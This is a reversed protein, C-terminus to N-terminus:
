ETNFRSAEEEQLAKLKLYVQVDPHNQLAKPIEDKTLLNSYLGNFAQVASTNKFAQEATAYLAAKEMANKMKEALVEQQNFIIEKM